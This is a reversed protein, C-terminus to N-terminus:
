GNGREQLVEATEACEGSEGYELVRGDALWLRSGPTNNTVLAPNPAPVSPAREVPKQSPKRAM